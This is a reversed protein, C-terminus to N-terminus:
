GELQCTYVVANTVSSAQVTLTKSTAVATTSSGVYWKISGLSGCVGADTISQEVGGKYVHATLVTSGSSNKFVTGNSSTVSVTIADAGAAGTAGTAGHTGIIAPTTNTPTSSTTYEIKQYCWIYKNTTTTATPTTSWGSTSVTVGSGSSTTLYYNTVKSIGNGTAGTQGTQGTAGHTGIIVPTTNTDSKKDYSITQYCWLYKNTITTSQITTSWGSTSTTVGSSASTALYHNVIGTISNGAAGTAGTAGTKAVAFSFKKNITVGDVSVPIIAECADSITATTTFTITVVNTGSGSVSVSIGTPCTIANKDVTVTTCQNTGCFAVAQTSCTLGTGAGTIGGVFTYAESTLTISYADTVDVITIQDASKIAM